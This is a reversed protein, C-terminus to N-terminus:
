NWHKYLQLKHKTEFQLIVAIFTNRLKHLTSIYHIIHANRFHEVAGDPHM